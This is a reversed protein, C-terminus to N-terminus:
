RCHRQRPHRPLREWKTLNICISWRKSSRYLVLWERELFGHYNASGFRRCGNNQDLILQGIKLENLKRKRWCCRLHLQVTRQEKSAKNTTPRQVSSRQVLKWYQDQNVRGGGWPWDHWEMRKSLTKNKLRSHVSSQALSCRVFRRAHCGFGGNSASAKKWIGV